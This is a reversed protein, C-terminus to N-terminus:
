SVCVTSLFPLTIRFVAVPSVASVTRISPEMTASACAPICCSVPLLGSYTTLRVSVSSPLVLNASIVESYLPLTTEMQISSIMIEAGVTLATIESPLATIEPLKVAADAVSKAFLIM